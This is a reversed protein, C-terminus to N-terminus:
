QYVSILSFCLTKQLTHMSFSTLFCQFITHYFFFLMLLSATCYTILIFASQISFLFLGFFFFILFFYYPWCTYSFTSSSTLVSFVFFFQYIEFATHVQLITSNNFFFNHFKPILIFYPYSIACVSIYLFSLFLLSLVLILYFVTFFFIYVLKFFCYCLQKPFHSSLFFFFISFIQQNCFYSSIVFFYFFSPLFISATKKTSHITKKPLFINIIKTEIM